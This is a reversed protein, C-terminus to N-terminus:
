DELAGWPFGCLFSPSSLRDASCFGEAGRRPGGSTENGLSKPVKREESRCQLKQISKSSLGRGSTMSRPGDTKLKPTCRVKCFPVKHDTVTHPKLDGEAARNTWIVLLLLLLSLLLKDRM